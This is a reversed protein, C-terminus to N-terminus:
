IRGARREMEDAVARALREYDIEPQAERRRRTAQDVFRRPADAFGRAYAANGEALGYAISTSLDDEEDADVEEAFAGFADAAADAMDEFLDSTALLLDRFAYGRRRRRHRRKKIDSDADDIARSRARSSPRRRLDATPPASARDTVGAPGGVSETIPEEAM